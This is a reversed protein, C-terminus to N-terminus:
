SFRFNPYKSRLDLARAQDTKLQSGDMGVIEHRICVLESDGHPAAMMAVLRQHSFQAKLGRSAGTEVKIVRLTLDVAKDFHQPGRNL